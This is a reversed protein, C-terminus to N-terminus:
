GDTAVRQDPEDLADSGERERLLRWGVWLAAGAAVEVLLAGAFPLVAPGIYSLRDVGLAGNGLATLVAVVAVAIGSATTVAAFRARANGFFELDRDVWRAILVGAAIPLLVVAYLARPYSAEDPLAALVPILPMLGPHASAPSIVSGVAVGFGPGAIFSLAWTAANGMMLLQGVIVVLAAVVNIGYQSQVTAVAGFSVLVRAIVVALGLLLLLGAGRWGIRWVAPLWTPGRRFWSRVFAPATEDEPRLFVLGLAAAPVVLAGVIAVLSPRAPGALTLMAAVSAILLYGGLFGPIVSRAAVRSWEAATFGMREIAVLRRLFRAVIYGNVLLLLIPTLSISLGGSDISQGHGLFWLASGVSVASFWGLSSEPAAIWGVLSPLVVLAWTAVAALAGARLASTLTAPRAPASPARKSPSKAGPAATTSTPM